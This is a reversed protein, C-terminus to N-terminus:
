SHGQERLFKEVEERSPMSSTTGPKTVSLAATAHAFRIAEALSKGETLGVTFGGNFADGAGTTDVPKVRFGPILASESRTVYQAGKAGLTVIVTQDDSTLLSRAKQEVSDLSGDGCLIDLEHENPTLYDVLRLMEEPIPEAPAPAPNLITTVGHQKALRLAHHVSALPLELQTLLADATAIEAEAREVDQPSLANNAGLVVAVVNEATQEDVFIPAVGTAQDSDRVVYRTDVGDRQWIDLAADGFSDTGVRAVLMVQAGLRAAAVSQNSGKGGPGTIFRSGHVTEGPKPLRELYAVLDMNFSGVIVIKAM